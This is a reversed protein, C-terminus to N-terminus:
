TWVPGGPCDTPTVLVFLTSTVLVEVWFELLPLAVTLRLPLSTPAYLPFAELELECVVLTLVLLLELLWYIKFIKRLKVSNCFDVLFVPMKPRYKKIFSHEKGFFWIYHWKPGGFHSLLERRM